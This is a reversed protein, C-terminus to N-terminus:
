GFDVAWSGDPLRDVAGVGTAHQRGTAQRKFLDVQGIWGRAETRRAKLRSAGKAKSKEGDDHSQSHIPPRHIDPHARMVHAGGDSVLITACNKWATELGLNDYV